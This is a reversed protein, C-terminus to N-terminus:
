TTGDYSYYPCTIYSSIGHVDSFIFLFLVRTAVVIASDYYKICM